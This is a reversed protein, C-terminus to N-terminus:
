YGMAEAFGDRFGTASGTWRPLFVHPDDTPTDGLQDVKAEFEAYSELPGDCDMAERCCERLVCDDNLSFREKICDYGEDTPMSLYLVVRKGETLTIRAPSDNWYVWLRVSRPKRTECM